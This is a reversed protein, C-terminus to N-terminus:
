RGLDNRIISLRADLAQAQLQQQPTATANNLFPYLVNLAQTTTSLEIIENSLQTQNANCTNIQANVAILSPATFTSVSVFAFTSYDNNQMTWQAGPILVNLAAAVTCPSNPFAVPTPAAQVTAGLCVLFVLIKSSTILKMLRRWAGM